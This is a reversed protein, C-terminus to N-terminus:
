KKSFRYWLFPLSQRISGSASKSVEDLMGIVESDGRNKKVCLIHKCPGGNAAFDLCDCALAGKHWRVVHDDRGGTIYYVDGDQGRISLEMSRVLRYPDVSFSPCKRVVPEIQPESYSLTGGASDLQTAQAVISAAFKDGIGVIESLEKVSAASLQKLTRYGKQALKKATLGGVGKIATIATLESGIGYQLMDSLMSSIEKLKYCRGITEEKNETKELTACIAAASSLLRVINDQLMSVDSPYTHLVKATEKASIGETLLYCVASMKVASLM